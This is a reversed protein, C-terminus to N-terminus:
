QIECEGIHLQNIDDYKIVGTVTALQGAILDIAKDARPDTDAFGCILNDLTGENDPNGSYDSMFVNVKGYRSDVGRVSGTISFRKGEYDRKFRLMNGKITESIKGVRVSPLTENNATIPISPVTKQNRYKELQGIFQNDPFGNFKAYDLLAIAQKGKAANDSVIAVVALFTGMGSTYQALDSIDSKGYCHGFTDLYVRATAAAEDHDGRNVEKVMKNTQRTFANKLNRGTFSNERADDLCTNVALSNFDSTYNGLIQTVDQNKVDTGNALSCLALAICTPIAYKAFM